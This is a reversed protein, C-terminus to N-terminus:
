LTLLNGETETLPESGAIKAIIKGPRAFREVNRSFLLGNTRSKVEVLDQDGDEPLPNIIRAIPEDNAVTDGLKKLYVIIGASSAKVYDV